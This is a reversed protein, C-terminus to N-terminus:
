LSLTVGQKLDVNDVVTHGKGAVERYLREVHILDMPEIDYM